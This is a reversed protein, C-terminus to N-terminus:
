RPQFNNAIEMSANNEGLTRTVRSTQITLGVPANDFLLTACKACPAVGQCCPTASGCRHQQGDESLVRVDSSIPCSQCRTLWLCFLCGFHRMGEHRNPFMQVLENVHGNYFTRTSTQRKGPVTCRARHCASRHPDAPGPTLPLIVHQPM